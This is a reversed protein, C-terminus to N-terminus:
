VLSLTKLSNPLSSLSASRSRTCFIRVRARSDEFESSFCRTLSAIKSSCFAELIRVVTISYLGILYRRISFQSNLISFASQPRQGDRRDMRLEWNEIRLQTVM